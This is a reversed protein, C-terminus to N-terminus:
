LHTAARSPCVSPLAPGLRSLAAADEAAEGRSGQDVEFFSQPDSKPQHESLREGLMELAITELQHDRRNPNLLYDGIMTDIFPGALTM